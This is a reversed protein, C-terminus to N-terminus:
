RAKEVETEDCEPIELSKKQWEVAKDFEGIEAYAAALTGLCYFDKWLTLECAKTADLVAQKGNRERADPCTALLWGLNDYGYYSDPNLRIATCYDASAKAYVKTKDFTLGRYVYAIDKAGDLRIAQNLDALARDYDKRFYYARGRNLYADFYNR